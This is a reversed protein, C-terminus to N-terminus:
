RSAWRRTFGLERAAFAAYHMTSRENVVLVNIKDLALAASVSLAALAAAGLLTTTMMRKMGAVPHM